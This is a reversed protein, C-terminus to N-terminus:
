SAWWVSRHRRAKRRDAGDLPPLCLPVCTGTNPTHTHSDIPTRSLRASRGASPAKATQKRTQWAPTNALQSTKFAASRARGELVQPHSLCSRGAPRALNWAVGVEIRTHPRRISGLARGLTHTHAALSGSSFPSHERKGQRHDWRGVCWVRRWCWGVSLCGVFELRVRRAPVKPQLQSPPPYKLKLALRM